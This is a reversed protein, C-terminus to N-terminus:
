KKEIYVPDNTAEILIIVARFDLKGSEIFLKIYEIDETAVILKARQVDNLVLSEDEVCQKIFQKDYTALILQVKKDGNLIKENESLFKKISAQEKTACVFCLREDLDLKLRELCGQIYGIDGTASILRTGISPKETIGKGLLYDYDEKRIQSAINALYEEEIRECIFDWRNQDIMKKIKNKLQEDNIYPMVDEMGDINRRKALAELLGQLQKRDLYRDEDLEQEM